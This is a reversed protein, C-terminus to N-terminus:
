KVFHVRLTSDFLSPTSVEVAYQPFPPLRSACAHVRKAESREKVRGGASRVNQM